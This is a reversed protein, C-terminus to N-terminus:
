PLRWFKYPCLMFFGANEEKVPQCTVWSVLRTVLFGTKRTESWTLSLCAQEASSVLSPRSIEAIALLSIISDLCRFVFACILRRPHVPQDTGRNNAYPLLLSQWSTTWIYSWQINSHLFSILEIILGFQQVTPNCIFETQPLLCEWSFVTWHVSWLIKENDQYLQFSGRCSLVLLILTHGAFVWILRPMGGTQDTKATRM